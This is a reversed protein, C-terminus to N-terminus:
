PMDGRVIGNKKMLSWFQAEDEATSYVNGMELEERLFIMGTACFRNGNMLFEKAKSQLSTRCEAEELVTDMSRFLHVYLMEGDWGGSYRFMQRQVSPINKGKELILTLRPDYLWSESWFGKVKLEPYYKDYFEVALKMSGRLREPTYGEGSPVHLAILCDGKDLAIQYEEKPLSIAQDAVYGCPNLYFGTVQNEDEEVFTHFIEPRRAKRAVYEYGTGATLKRDSKEEILQGESDVTLDGDSIGVVKGTRNSRYLRFRDGHIYPIFLFRDLLFISLTYFNLRWPMDEVDIRGTHIYREMQERLMRHPIDEYYSVPIGRRHMEQEAVPVCALLVIFAYADNFQGLCGPKLETSGDVDYKSRVFCVNWVFFRAFELTGQDAEIADLACRLYDRKEDPLQYPALLSDFKNRDMLAGAPMGTIADGAALMQVRYERYAEEFNKPLKQMGLYETLELYGCSM